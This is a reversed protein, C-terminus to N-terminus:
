VSATLLLLLALTLNDIPGDTPSNTPSDAPNDTPWKLPTLKYIVGLLSDM